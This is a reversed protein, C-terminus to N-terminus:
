LHQGGFEKNFYGDLLDVLNDIQNKSPQQLKM